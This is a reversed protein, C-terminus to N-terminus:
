KKEKFDKIARVVKSDERMEEIFLIQDRNIIVEDVPGHLENGLKVLTIDQGPQQPVTVAKGKEIKVNGGSIDQPQLANQVRLYYVDTLVPYLSERNKLKGFYVQNNVMFVAVYGSRQGSVAASGLPSTLNTPARFSKLFNLIGDRFYWIGGAFGLFFIVILASFVFIKTRNTKPVSEFEFVQATKAM